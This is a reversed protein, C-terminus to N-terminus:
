SFDGYFKRQEEYFDQHPMSWSDSSDHIYRTKYVTKTNRKYGKELEKIIDKNIIAGYNQNGNSCFDNNNVEKDFYFCINNAKDFSACEYCRILEIAM